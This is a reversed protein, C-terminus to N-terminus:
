KKKKVKYRILLGGAGFLVLLAGLLYHWPVLAPAAAPAAPMLLDYLQGPTVFEYDTGRKYEGLKQMMYNFMTLSASSAEHTVFIAFDHNVCVDQVVEDIKSTNIYEYVVRDKLYPYANGFLDGYKYYRVAWSDIREDRGYIFGEGGAKYIGNVTFGYAELEKKSLRFYMNLFDYDDVNSQTIPEASHCIIEGGAAVCLRMYDLNTKYPDDPICGKAASPIAAIYYPINENIFLEHLEKTEGRRLDDTGICIYGKTLTNLEPPDANIYNRYNTYVDALIASRDEAKEKKQFVYSQDNYYLIAMWVGNAPITFETYEDQYTRTYAEIVTKNSDFIIISPVEANKSDLHVPPSNYRYEEGGKVPIMNAYPTCSVNIRAEQDGWITDSSSIQTYAYDNDPDYYYGAQWEGYVDVWEMNPTKGNANDANGTCYLIGPAIVIVALIFVILVANRKKM